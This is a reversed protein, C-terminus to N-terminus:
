AIVPYGHRAADRDLAALAEYDKDGLVHIGRLSLVDCVTALAPDAVVEALARRLTALQEPSTTMSTIFPLGPGSATEMLVRVGAVREPDFRLTNGFTVCDIAAVDAKGSAVADISARHGRNGTRVFLLAGRDCAPRHARSVPQLGFQERARQDGCANGQSGHPLCGSLRRSCHRLQM